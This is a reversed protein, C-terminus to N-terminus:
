SCLWLGSILQCVFSMLSDQQGTCHEVQLTSSFRLAFIRFDVIEWILAQRDPANGM